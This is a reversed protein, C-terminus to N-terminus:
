KEVKKPRGPKKKITPEVKDVKKIKTTKKIEKKIETKPKTSSKTEKSTKTKPTIEKKKEVTPKTKVNKKVQEEKKKTPVQEKKPKELKKTEEKIEKKSDKKTTKASSTKVEKKPLTKTEQKKNEAKIIPTEIKELKSDEEIIKSLIKKFKDNTIFINIISEITLMFGLSIFYFGFMMTQVTVNNFLNFTTLMGLFGILFTVIFKVIWLYNDERRLQIVKVGRNAIILITFITMGAGLIMAPNDKKFVFMFTATIINILSLLLLEYDDEKRGVFYLVTSFIAYIYFLVSGYLVIEILGFSKFIMVVVGMLLILISLILESILNMDISKLTKKM